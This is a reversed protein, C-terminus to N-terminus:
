ILNIVQGEGRVRRGSIVEAVRRIYRRDLESMERYLTLLIREDHSLSKTVVVVEITQSDKSKSIDSM